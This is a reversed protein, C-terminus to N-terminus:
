AVDDVEPLSQIARRARWVSFEHQARAYCKNAFEKHRDFASPDLLYYSLLLSLGLVAVDLMTQDTKQIVELRRTEVTDDGATHRM